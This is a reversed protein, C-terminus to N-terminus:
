FYIAKRDDLSGFPENEFPESVPFCPPIRERSGRLSRIVFARNANFRANNVKM